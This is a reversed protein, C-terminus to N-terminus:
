YTAEYVGVGDYSVVEVRVTGGGGALTAQQYACLERVTGLLDSEVLIEHAHDLLAITVDPRQTALELLNGGHAAVTEDLEAPTM